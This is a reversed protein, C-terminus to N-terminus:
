FCRGGIVTLNDLWGHDEVVPSVAGAFGGSVALQSLSLDSPLTGSADLRLTGTALDVLQITYDGTDADYTLTARYAGGMLSLPEYHTTGNPAIEHAAVAEFAGDLTSNWHNYIFVGFGDSPAAHYVGDGEDLLWDTGPDVWSIYTRNSNGNTGMATVEFDFTVGTATEGPLEVATAFPEPSLGTTTVWDLRAEAANHSLTAYTESLQVLDPAADFRDQCACGTGINDIWGSDHVIPSTAGWFGGSVALMSLSLGAPLTGSADLRTTGTTVDALRITYDGTYADYTLTARYVEGMLSAPEYHTTGNPAIQHAAVAEFYGDLATNWHNYIFIGLGQTPAAHYIGNGEDPLWDTGPDVWSIYTRNSNGNTGMATVEFDFTLTNSSASGLDLATAFPEGDTVHGTETNWDLRDSDADYTLAPYSAAVQVLTPAADLADVCTSCLSTDCQVTDADRCVVTGCSGCPEGPENPLETCGGCANEDPNQCVVADPGDCVVTGCDGCEAEPEASLVSCGGCTNQGPDDCVVADAGDCVVTGCDGCGAEPEAGLVSCGGCANQGPDDCVVAEAGDCAVSGCDGCDDGPEASLVGCGGCANQGPDACVVADTGDCVFTGCDGCNTGPPSNLVSCGGCTNVEDTSCGGQGATGAQDNGRGGIDGVGGSGAAAGARGASGDATEGASGAEGELAGGSGAAGGTASTGGTTQGDGTAGTGGTTNRGGTGGASQDGGAGSAGGSKGADAMGAAAAEGGEGSTDGPEHGGSSPGSGGSESGAEGGANSGGAASVDTDFCLGFLGSPTPVEACTEDSEQCPCTNRCVGETDDQLEEPCEEGSTVCVETGDPTTVCAGYACDIDHDCTERCRGFACVLPDRCDSSENCVGNLGHRSHGGHCGGLLLLVPLLLVRVRHIKMRFNGKRESCAHSTEMSM